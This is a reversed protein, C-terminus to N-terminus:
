SERGHQGSHYLLVGPGPQSPAVDVVMCHHPTRTDLDDEQVATRTGPQTHTHSSLLIRRRSSCAGPNATTTEPTTTDASHAARPTNQAVAVRQPSDCEKGKATDLVQTATGDKRTKGFVSQMTPKGRGAPTDVSSVAQKSPVAATTLM